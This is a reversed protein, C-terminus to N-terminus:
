LFIEIPARSDFGNSGDKWIKLTGKVHVKTGTVALRQLRNEAKKINESFVYGLPFKKNNGATLYYNGGAYPAFKIIGTGKFPIRKKINQECKKDYESLPATEAHITLFPKPVNQQQAESIMEPTTTAFAMVAGCVLIIVALMVNKKM